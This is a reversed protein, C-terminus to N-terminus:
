WRTWVNGLEGERDKPANKQKMGVFSGIEDCQIRKCPLNALHEGQYAACVDGLEVLLKVITNKVVGTM